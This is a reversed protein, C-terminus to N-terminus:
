RGELEALVRSSAARLPGEDDAALRKALARVRERWQAGSLAAREIELAEALDRAAGDRRAIAEPLQDDCRAIPTPYSRVAEVLARKRAELQQALAAWAEKVPEAM